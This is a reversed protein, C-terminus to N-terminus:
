MLFKNTSPAYHQSRLQIIQMTDQLELLIVYHTTHKSM